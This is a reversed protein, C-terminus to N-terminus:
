QVRSENTRRLRRPGVSDIVVRGKSCPLAYSRMITELAEDVQEAMYGVFPETSRVTVDARRRRTVRVDVNAGPLARDLHREIAGALRRRDVRTWGPGRRTVLTPRAAASTATLFAWAFWGGLAVLAVGVLVEAGEGHSRRLWRVLDDVDRSGLLFRDAAGLTLWQAGVALVAIATVIGLMRLAFSRAM